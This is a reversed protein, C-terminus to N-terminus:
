KTLRRYYILTRAIRHRIGRKGLWRRLHDYDGAVRLPVELADDAALEELGEFPYVAGRGSADHVKNLRSSM